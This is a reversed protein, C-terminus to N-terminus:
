VNKKVKFGISLLFVRNKRSLRIARHRPQSHDRYTPPRLLATSQPRTLSFKKKIKGGKIGNGKKKSSRFRHRPFYLDSFSSTSSGSM